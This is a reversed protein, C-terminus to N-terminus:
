KRLLRALSPSPLNEMALGKPNSGLRQRVAQPQQCVDGVPMGEKFLEKHDKVLDVIAEEDADTLYITMMHGKKYRSQSKSTGAEGGVEADIKANSRDTRACKGAVKEEASHTTEEKM